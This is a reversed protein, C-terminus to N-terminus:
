DIFACRGIEAGNNVWELVGEPFTTAVDEGDACVFVESMDVHWAFTAGALGGVLKDGSADLSIPNDMPFDFAEAVGQERLFTALNM